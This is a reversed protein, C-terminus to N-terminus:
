GHMSLLSKRGEYPSKERFITKKRFITPLEDVSMSVIRNIRNSAKNRLQIKSLLTESNEEHASLFENLKFVERIPERDTHYAKNKLSDILKHSPVAEQRKIAMFLILDDIVGELTVLDSILDPVFSASKRSFEPLSTVIQNREFIDMIRRAKVSAKHIHSELADLKQKNSAHIRSADEIAGQLNLKGQLSKDESEEANKKSSEIMKRVLRVEREKTDIDRQLDVMYATLSNKQQEYKILTIVFEDIDAVGAAEKITQLGARMENLKAKQLSVKEKQEAVIKDWKIKLKKLVVAPELNEAKSKTRPDVASFNLQQTLSSPSDHKIENALNQIAEKFKVFQTTSKTKLNITAQSIRTTESLEKQGLAAEKEKKEQLAHFQAQLKNIKDTEKIASSRLTDIESRLQRNVTATSNVKSLVIDLQHQLYAARKNLKVTAKEADAKAKKPTIENSREVLRSSLERIEEDLVTSTTKEYEYMSIHRDVLNQLSAM